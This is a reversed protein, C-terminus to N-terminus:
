RVARFKGRTFKFKLNFIEQPIGFFWTVGLYIGLTLSGYVMLVLFDHIKSTFSFSLVMPLLWWVAGSFIIAMVMLGLDKLAKWYTVHYNQHLVWLNIIFAVLTAIFSSLPMGPYGLMAILPYTILLKISLGCILSVFNWRRLRLSMLLTAAIPFIAGSISSLTVWKLIDGGLIYHEAGYMVFYVERSYVFLCFALPLTIYAVAELAENIQQKMKQYDRQVFASTVLPIIAVAFGPALVQPIASLKFASFNIISLVLSSYEVSAGRSFMAQSYFLLNIVGNAESIVSLLLFPTAYVILEKLIHQQDTFSQKAALEKIMKHRARDKWWLYAIGMMAAVTASLVAFYVAVIREQRFVVVCLYGSLLLFGIRTVQEIVQSISPAEFEHLGQSYGRYFSLLPVVLLAISVLWLMMRVTQVYQQDALKPSILAALPSAFVVLFLMSVLGIGMMLRRGVQKVLLINVYDEKTYYKSVAMSIAFPIGAISLTLLYDYLTYAYSYFVINAEGVLATFPVVYFIGLAKALLIGLTSTLASAILSKNKHMNNKRLM